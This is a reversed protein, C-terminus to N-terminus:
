LETDTSIVRSNVGTEITFKMPGRLDFQCSIKFFIIQLRINVPALFSKSIKFAEM